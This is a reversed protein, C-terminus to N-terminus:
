IGPFVAAYKTIDVEKKEASQSTLKQSDQETGLIQSIHTDGKVNLVTFVQSPLIKYSISLLYKPSSLFYKSRTKYFHIEAGQVPISFQSLHKYGYKQPSHSGPKVAVLVPSQRRIYEFTISYDRFNADM